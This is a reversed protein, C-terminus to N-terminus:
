EIQLIEKHSNYILSRKLDYNNGNQHQLRIKDLHSKLSDNIEKIRNTFDM